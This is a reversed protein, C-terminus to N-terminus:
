NDLKRALPLIIRLLIRSELENENSSTGFAESRRCTAFKDSVLKRDLEHQSTFTSCANYLGLEMVCARMAIGRETQPLVYINAIDAEHSVIYLFTAVNQSM